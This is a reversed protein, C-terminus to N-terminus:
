LRAFSSQRLDVGELFLYVFVSLKEFRLNNDDIDLIYLVALILAVSCDILDGDESLQGVFTGLEWHDVWIRICHSM